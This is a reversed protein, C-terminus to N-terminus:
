VNDYFVPNYIHHLKMVACYLEGFLPMRKHRMRILYAVLMCSTVYIIDMKCTVFLKYCSRDPLIKNPTATSSGNCPLM